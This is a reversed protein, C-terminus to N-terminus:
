YMRIFRSNYGVADFLVTTICFLLAGIQVAWRPRTEECAGAFLLMSGLATVVLSLSAIVKASQSGHRIRRVTFPAWCAASILTVALISPLVYDNTGLLGGVPKQITWSVVMGIFGLVALIQFVIALWVYTSSFGLWLDNQVYGGYLPLLCTYSALVLAGCILTTILALM